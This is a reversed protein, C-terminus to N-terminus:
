STPSAAPRARAFSRVPARPAVPVPLAPDRSLRGAPRVWSPSEDSVVLKAACGPPWRRHLEREWSPSTASRPRPHRTARGRGSYPSPHDGRVESPHARATSTRNSTPERSRALGRASSPRWAHVLHILKGPQRGVPRQISRPPPARRGLLARVRGFGRTRHSGDAVGPIPTTRSRDTQIEMTTHPTRGSSRTRGPHRPVPAWACRPVCRVADTTGRGIQIGTQAGARRM